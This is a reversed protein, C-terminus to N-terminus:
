IASLARKPGRSVQIIGMKRIQRLGTGVGALAGQISGRAEGEGLMSGKGLMLVLLPAIAHNCFPCLDGQIMGLARNPGRGFLTIGM